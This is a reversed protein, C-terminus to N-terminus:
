SSPSADLIARREECAAQPDSYDEHRFTAMITDYDGTTDDIVLEFNVPCPPTVCQADFFARCYHSFEEFKEDSKVLECGYFIDRDTEIHVYTCNLNGISKRQTVQDYYTVTSPQVSLANYIAEPDFESLDVICDYFVSSVAKEDKLCTLGGVSKQTYGPRRNEENINLADYIEKDSAFVDAGLLLTLLLITCRM